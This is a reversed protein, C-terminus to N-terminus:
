STRASAVARQPDDAGDGLQVLREVRRGLGAEHRRHAGEVCAVERQKLGGPGLVLDEDHAQEDVRRLEVGGVVEGGVRAVLLAVRARGVLRAGVQEEGRGGVLEVRGAVLGPDLDLLERAPELARRPRAM